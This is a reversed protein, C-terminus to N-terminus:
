RTQRPPAYDLQQKIIPNERGSTLECWAAQLWRKSVRVQDDGSGAMVKSLEDLNILAM